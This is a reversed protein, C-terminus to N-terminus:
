GKGEGLGSGVTSRELTRKLAKQCVGSAWLARRCQGVAFLLSLEPTPSQAKGQLREECAELQGEKERWGETSPVLDWGAHGGETSPM